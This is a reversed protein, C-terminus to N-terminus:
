DKLSKITGSIKTIKFVTKKSNIQNITGLIFLTEQVMDHNCRIIAYNKDFKVLKIGLLTSYILGFYKISNQKLTKKFETKSIEGESVIQVRIYRKKERLTPPLIKLKKM